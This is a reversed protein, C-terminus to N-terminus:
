EAIPKQAAMATHQSRWAQTLKTLATLRASASTSTAPRKTSTTTKKSQAGINATGSRCNPPDAAIAPAAIATALLIATLKKMKMIGELIRIECTLM